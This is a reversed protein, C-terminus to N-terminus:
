RDAKHGIGTKVRPATMIEIRDTVDELVIAPQKTLQSLEPPTKGIEVLLM